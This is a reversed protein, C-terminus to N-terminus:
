LSSIGGKGKGRRVAGEETISISSDGKKGLLFCSYFEVEAGWKRKRRRDRETRGEEKTSHSVRGPYSIVIRENPRKEFRM